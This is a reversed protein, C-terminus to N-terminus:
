SSRGHQRRRRRRAHVGPAHDRRPGYLNIFGAAFPGILGYLLLNVSVAFSITARSWGFEHELPVILVSPVSRVGAGVILTLFTVAAVVWAYHFRPSPQPPSSTM